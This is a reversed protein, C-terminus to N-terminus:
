QFTDRWTEIVDKCIPNEPLLKAYTYAKKFCEEDKTLDGLNSYCAVLNPVYELKNEDVRGEMVDIACLYYTQAGHVDVTDHLMVGLASYATALCSWCEERKDNEVIEEFLDVIKLFYKEANEYQEMDRYAVAQNLYKIAINFSNSNNENIHKSNVFM